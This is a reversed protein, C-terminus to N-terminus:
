KQAESSISTTMRTKLYIHRARTRERDRERERERERKTKREFKALKSFSNFVEQSLPM